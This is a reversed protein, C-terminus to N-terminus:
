SPCVRWLECSGSLVGAFADLNVLVGNTLLGLGLDIGAVNDAPAGSTLPDLIPNLIDLLGAQASSFMASAVAMSTVSRFLM